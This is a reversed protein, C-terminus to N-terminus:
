WKKAHNECILKNTERTVAKAEEFCGKKGCTLNPRRNRMALKIKSTGDEEKKVQGKHLVKIAFATSTGFDYSYKISTGVELIDGLNGATMIKANDDVPLIDESSFYTNKGVVMSSLHECCELWISRLRDDVDALSASALAKLYMWYPGAVCYLLYYTNGGEGKQM